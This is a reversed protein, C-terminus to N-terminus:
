TAAAPLVDKRRLIAASVITIIVGVPFIEIFFIAFAILPNELMKLVDNMQAVTKDIEEQPKGESKMKETQHEAFRASFREVFGPNALNYVAGGAFYFVSAILSILLGIQVGKWFTVRGNGYNDRYSKIGFFIMSLSIVMSTYGIIELRDMPLINKESLTATLFVFSFIILGSILGFIIVVKKM